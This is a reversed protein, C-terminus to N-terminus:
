LTEMFGTNQSQHSIQSNGFKRCTLIFKSTSLWHKWNSKAYYVWNPHERLTILLASDILLTAISLVQRLKIKFTLSKNPNVIVPSQYM